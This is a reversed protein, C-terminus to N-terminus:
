PKPSKPQQRENGNGSSATSRTLALKVTWDLNLQHSPIGVVVVVVAGHLTTRAHQRTLSKVIFFLEVAVTRGVGASFSGRDGFGGQVLTEVSLCVCM